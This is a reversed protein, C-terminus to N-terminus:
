SYKDLKLKRKTEEKWAELQALATEPSESLREEILQARAKLEIMWPVTAGELLQKQEVLVKMASPYEGSEILTYALAELTHPNVSQGNSEVSAKLYNLAGTLTSVKQLFPIAEVRIAEILDNILNPSDANWQGSISSIRKGYNFHIVDTPVFLPLFFANL